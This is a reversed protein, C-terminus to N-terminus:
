PRRGLERSVRDVFSVAEEVEGRQRRAIAEAAIAAALTLHTTDVPRRAWPFLKM